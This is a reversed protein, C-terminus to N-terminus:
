GVFARWCSVSCFGPLRDVMPRYSGSDSAWCYRYKGAASGCWRCPVRDVKRVTTRELTARAFPDRQLQTAM